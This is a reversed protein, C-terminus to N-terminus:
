GALLIGSNPTDELGWGGMPAITDSYLALTFLCRRYMKGVGM